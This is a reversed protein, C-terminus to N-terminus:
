TGVERRRRGKVGDDGDSCEQKSKRMVQAAQRGSVDCHKGALDEQIFARLVTLFILLTTYHM